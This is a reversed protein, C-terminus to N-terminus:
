ALPLVLVSRVAEKLVREATASHFLPQAAPTGVVLLDAEFRRATQLIADAASRQSLVVPRAELNLSSLSDDLKHRYFDVLSDECDALEDRPIRAVDEPEVEMRPVNHVVVLSSRLREVLEAAKRVVPMADRALDTAAVVGTGSLPQVVLVPAGSARAIATVARPHRVEALSLVVLSASLDVAAQIAEEVFGGEEVQLASPGLRGPLVREVWGQLRREGEVVRFMENVAENSASRPFLMDVRRPRPIVRLVVLRAGLLHALAWARQLVYDPTQASATALLVTSPRRRREAHPKLPTAM